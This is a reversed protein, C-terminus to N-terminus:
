GLSICSGRHILPIGLKNYPKFHLYLFLKLCKTTYLKTSISLSITKFHNLKINIINNNYSKNCNTKYKMSITIGKQM